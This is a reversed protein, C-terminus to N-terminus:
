QPKTPAPPSPSSRRTISAPAAISSICAKASNWSSTISSATLRRPAGVVWATYARRARVPSRPPRTGGSRRPRPSGRRRGRRRATPGAARRRAPGRDPPQPVLQPELEVDALQEVDEPRDLALAPDLLGLPDGAVLAALVRDLAREVEARQQGRGLAAVLQEGASLPYPRGSPSAKWIRSSTIPANPSEASVPLGTPSSRRSPLGVGSSARAAAGGRRRLAVHEVEDAVASRSSSSTAAIWATITSSPHGRRAPAACRRGRRRLGDGREVAASEGVRRPALQDREGVVDDRPADSSGDDAPSPPCVIRSSATATTPDDTATAPSTTPQGRAGVVLRLALGRRQRRDDRRGRGGDRRRRGSRLAEVLDLLAVGQGPDGVLEAHRDERDSSLPM